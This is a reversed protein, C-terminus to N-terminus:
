FFKHILVLIASILMLIALDVIIAVLIMNLNEAYWQANYIITYLLACSVLVAVMATARVKQDTKPNDQPHSM